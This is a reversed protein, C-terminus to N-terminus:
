ALDWAIAVFEVSVGGRKPTLTLVEPADQGATSVTVELRQTRALWRDFNKAWRTFKQLDMASNPLPQFTGEGPPDKLLQAQTVDTPQAGEWDVSRTGTTLPVVFAVAKVQDIKRKRDQFRVKAAGYLKPTYTGKKSTSPLFLQPIEPSGLPRTPGELPAKATPTM